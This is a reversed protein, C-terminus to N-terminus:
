RAPPKPHVFCLCGDNLESVLLFRSPATDPCLYRSLPPKPELQQSQTSPPYSCDAPTIDGVLDDSDSTPLSKQALYKSKRRWLAANIGDLDTPTAPLGGQSAGDNLSSPTLPPTLPQPPRPPSTCPSPSPSAQQTKSPALDLPGLHAHNSTPATVTSSLPSDPTQHLHSGAHVSSL